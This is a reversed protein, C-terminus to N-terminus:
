EYILTLRAFSSPQYNAHSRTSMRLNAPMRYCLLSLVRLFAALRKLNMVLATLYVQIAM